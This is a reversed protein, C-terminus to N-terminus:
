PQKEPKPEAQRALPSTKYDLVAKFMEMNNERVERAHKKTKTISKKKSIYVTTHVCMKLPMHELPFLQLQRSCYPIFCVFVLFSAAPAFCDHVPKAHCVTSELLSYVSCFLIYPAHCLHFCPTQYAHLLHLSHLQNLHCHCRSLM